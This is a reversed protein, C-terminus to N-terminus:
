TCYYYVPLVEIGSISPHQYEVYTSYEPMSSPYPNLTPRISDVTLKGYGAENYAIVDIFGASIPTASLVFTILHDSHIIFNDVEIGSFMPFVASLKTGSTPYYERILSNDFVGPSGSIYMNTTYDLMYGQISFQTSSLCPMAFWPDCQKLQPRGSIVFMETTDPSEQSELYILTDEIDSVATFTTFINYIKGTPDEPKKFLWGEIKFSTNAVQRYFQEHGIDHPTELALNGDWIVHSRIELNTIPMHWSIVIYPDTYPAFNTIIQDMDQQFRTVVSMNMTIDVPIPQLLHEYGSAATNITYYPGEIKNFVRNVARSINTIFVSVVPLKIHQAKNVLDHLVRNKPAYVFNVQIQDEPLKDENYRKIVIDNFADCFQAILTRLEWQFTYNKM